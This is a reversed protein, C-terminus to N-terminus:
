KISAFWENAERTLVDGGNRRWEAVVSDYDDVSQTGLIVKYFFEKLVKVVDAYEAQSPLAVKLPREVTNMSAITDYLTQREVGSPGRSVNYWPMFVWFPNTSFGGALNQGLEGSRRPDALWAETPRFYNGYENGDWPTWEWPQAEECVKTPESGVFCGLASQYYLERNTAITNLLQLLRRQVAAGCM